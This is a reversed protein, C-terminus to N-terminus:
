HFADPSINKAVVGLRNGLGLDCKLKQEIQCNFFSNIFDNIKWFPLLFVTPIEARIQSEIGM